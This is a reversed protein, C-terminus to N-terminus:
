IGRAMDDMLDLLLAEMARGAEEEGPGDTLIDVRDAGQPALRMVSLYDRADAFGHPTQLMIMCDFGQALKAIAGAPRAHFRAGEKLPVAITLM